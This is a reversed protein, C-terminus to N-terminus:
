QLPLKSLKHGSADCVTGNFGAGNANGFLAQGARANLQGQQGIECLIM